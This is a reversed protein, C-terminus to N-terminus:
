FFSGLVRSALFGLVTSSLAVGVVGAGALLLNQRRLAYSQVLPICALVPKGIIRMADAESHMSRDNKEVVLALGIGSFLGAILGALSILTRNPGFPKQPPMASDLVVFREAKQRAELANSMQAALKKDLLSQYHARLADNDQMLGSIQDEVIPAKELKAIHENIEAQLQPQLKKQEAIEENLKNVQADVVPNGARQPPPTSLAPQDAGSKQDEAIKAKLQDVEAQVKRVDPFNMGYRARLASLNAELKRLQLKDPSAGSTADNGSDLDITPAATISAEMSQLMVKQQEDARVRDESAQLQNRLNSLAELHFPKSEALDTVHSSRVAQVESNHEDLQRKTAQLESELFDATGETETERAKLNEQIFLKAIENTVRAVEVADKGRFAIKFASLRGGGPSVVEITVSKQMGLVIEQETRHGRLEPYLGMTDILRELRTPSLVQEKITSLRDAITSSVTSAVFKDPVQQPDVMIVTEARFVNPLRFAFAALCCFMGVAPLVIWWKRRKGTAWYERLDFSELLEKSSPSNPSNM